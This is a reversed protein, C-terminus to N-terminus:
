FKCEYWRGLKRFSRPYPTNYFYFTGYRWSTFYKLDVAEVTVKGSVIDYSACEGVDVAAVGYETRLNIKGSELM